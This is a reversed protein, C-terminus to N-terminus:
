PPNKDRLLKLCKQWEVFALISQLGLLFFTLLYCPWIYLAYYSM